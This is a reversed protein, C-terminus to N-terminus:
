VVENYDHSTIIKGDYSLYDLLIRDSVERDQTFGSPIKKNINDHIFITDGSFLINGTELTMSGKTHGGRLKLKIGDVEYEDDFLIVKKNKLFEKSEKLYEKLHNDESYLLEYETSTMYFEANEFYKVGSIHDYHSHTLFVKTIKDCPVGLKELNEKVNCEGNSRSWDDTSSKTKNAIDIDDIGTDILYYTDGNQLLFCHCGITTAKESSGNKYLVSEFCAIHATKLLKIDYVKM